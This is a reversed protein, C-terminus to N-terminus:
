PESSDSAFLEDETGYELIPFREEGAERLRDQVEVLTNLVADGKLKKAVDPALVITIRLAAQGESDTTSQSDTWKVAKAGLNHTAVDSVIQNIQELDLM